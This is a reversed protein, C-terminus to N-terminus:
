KCASDSVEPQNFIPKSGMLVTDFIGTISGTTVAAKMSHMLTGELLSGIGGSTLGSLAATYASNAIDQWFFPSTRLYNLENNFLGNVSM